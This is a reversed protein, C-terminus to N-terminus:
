RNMSSAPSVSLLLGEFSQGGLEGAATQRQIKFVGRQVISQKPPNEGRREEKEIYETNLASEKWKRCVFNVHGTTVPSWSFPDGLARFLPYMETTKKLQIFDWIFSYHIINILISDTRSVHSIFQSTDRLQKSVEEANLGCVAGNADVYNSLPYASEWWTPSWILAPSCTHCLMNIELCHELYVPLIPQKSSVCKDMLSAGAQDEPRVTSFLMEKARVLSKKQEQGRENKQSPSKKGKCAHQRGKVICDSGSTHEAQREFSDCAKVIARPM